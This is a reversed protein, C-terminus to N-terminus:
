LLTFEIRRGRVRSVRVLGAQELQALGRYITHRNLGLHEAVNYSVAGKNSRRIGALYWLTMGLHLTRGPLRAAAQAWELPIPGKIYRKYTKRNPLFPKTVLYM